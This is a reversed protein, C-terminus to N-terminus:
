LLVTSDQASLLEVFMIGVGVCYKINDAASMWAYQTFIDKLSQNLHHDLFDIFIANDM